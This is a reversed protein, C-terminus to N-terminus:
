VRTANVVLEAALRHRLPPDLDGVEELARELVEVGQEEEGAWYLANGLALATEARRRESRQLAAAERLHQIVAPVGLSAEAVALELLLEGREEDSAPEDLAGTVCRVGGEVG